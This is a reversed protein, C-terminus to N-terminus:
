RDTNEEVVRWIGYDNYIPAVRGAKAMLGRAGRQGLGTQEMVDRITIIGCRGMTFGVLFARETIVMEDREDTGCM